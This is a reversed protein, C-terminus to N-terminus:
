PKIFYRCEGANYDSYHLFVSIGRRLLFEDVAKKCGDYRGYDDIIVFGGEVVKDYLYELCVKTSEYWDADLRLIAIRDIDFSAKLITDQFWGKHFFLHNPDYKIKRILLDQCVEITGYGGRSAYVGKVPRLKGSLNTVKRGLLQEVDKVAQEGDIAPDPECIDNFVDFLYINRRQKGFRLNALAMMGVAGGKWVGCEVLAGEVNNQECFAVQEYLTALSLYSLMTNNRVINFCSKAGAINERLSEQNKNRLRLDYGFYAIIKKIGAKLLKM